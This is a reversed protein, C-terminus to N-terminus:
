PAVHQRLALKVRDLELEIRQLAQRTDAPHTTPPQRELTECHSALQKAGLNASCGRLTHAHRSANALDGGAVAVQLAKLTNPADEFFLDILEGLLDPEGEQQLERLADLAKEDVAPALEQVVSAPVSPVVAEQMPQPAIEPERLAWREIAAQLADPRIPKTLYDDMGADLCRERDEQAANATLAIIPLHGSSGERRRIEKTAEYGDMVPMQCDMLVAAYDGLAIAELAKEGHPALDAEYGLRKLVGMAVKQNIPNDEVVLLRRTDTRVPTVPTKEPEMAPAIATLIPPPSLTVAPEATTPLGLVRDICEKLHEPIVPKTMCATIGLHRADAVQDAFGLSTLMVIPLDTLALETRIVRAVQLGNMDPMMFDLLVLHIDEHRLASTRLLELAQPGDSACIGEIGWASLQHVLIARNVASDDVILARTHPGADRSPATTETPLATKLPLEFWFTSGTLPTSIVGIEGGMMEVLRKCTALGMGAGGYPRTPSDDCQTLPEFVKRCSAAALGIGTDTVEFRIRASSGPQEEVRARLIIEGAATFKLANDLLHLLVQRLRQADGVVSAPLGRYILAAFELGRARTRSAALESLNELLMRLDFPAEELEIKGAHLRPFELLQDILMLLLEASHHTGDAYERQQASLPTGLLLDTMGIIGNLPTRLEHSITAFFNNKATHAADQQRKYDAELTSAQRFAIEMAALFQRWSAADPPRELGLGLATMQAALQEHLEMPLAERDNKTSGLAQILNRM